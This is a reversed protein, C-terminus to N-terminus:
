GNIEGKLRYINSLNILIQEYPNYDTIDVPILKFSPIAIIGLKDAGTAMRYAVLQLKNELYLKKKNLKFDCVYLLGDKKYRIDVRGIFYDTEINEECSLIEAGNFFNIFDDQILRSEFCEGNKIFKEIQNHYSTGVAMTKKSYEETNVGQLGMKNAWKVLAPKDLLSILETVSPKKM